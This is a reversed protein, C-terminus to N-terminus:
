YEVITWQFPAKRAVRAFPCFHVGDGLEQFYKCVLFKYHGM